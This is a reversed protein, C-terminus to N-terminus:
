CAHVPSVFGPPKVVLVSCEVAKFLQEAANGTLIRDLGTRGLSGMVLLEIRYLHILGTIARLPTGDVLHTDTDTSIGADALCTMFAERHVAEAKAAFRDLLEPSFVVYEDDLAASHGYPEWAHVVHLRGDYRTAQSRALELILANLEPDDEPDIAALIRAGSFDPRLVWVPSPCLRLVRRVMAASHESGDATVIVLDHGARVVHRVIEVPPSGVDVDVHVASPALTEAFATLRARRQEVLLDTIPQTNTRLRLGRQLRPPEPVVSYLTLEADNARALSAAENVAAPMEATTTFDAFLIDRFRKM